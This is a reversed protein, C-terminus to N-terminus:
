GQPGCAKHKVDLGKIIFVVSEAINCCRDCIRKLSYSIFSLQVAREVARSEEIMTETLERFAKMHMNTSREPSHRVQQALDLSNEAFARVALDFLELCTEGLRWVGDAGELEPRELLVTARDAINVAEDAIRELNSAIRMIGMIARLDRAVPQKLALLRLGRAETRCEMIDVAEDGEAVEQCLQSDRRRAARLSKDVAERVAHCMRLTDIRLADLEQDFEYHM